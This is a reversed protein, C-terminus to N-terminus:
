PYSLEVVLGSARRAILMATPEEVGLAGEFAALENSAEEDYALSLRRVFEQSPAPVVLGLQLIGESGIWFSLELYEPNEEVVLSLLVDPIPSLNLTKNLHAYLELDAEVSDGFLETHVITYRNGGVSRGVRICADAEFQAYWQTLQDKTSGKPVMALAQKLAFVGDMVWGTEQQDNNGLRLWAQLEGEPVDQVIKDILKAEIDKFGGVKYFSKLQEKLLANVNGVWATAQDAHLDTSLHVTPERELPNQPFLMQHLWETLLGEREEDIFPLTTMAAQSRM